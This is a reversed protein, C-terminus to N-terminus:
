IPALNGYLKGHSIMLELVSQPICSIGLPPNGLHAVHEAGLALQMHLWLTASQDNSCQLSFGCHTVPPLHPMPAMEALVMIGM